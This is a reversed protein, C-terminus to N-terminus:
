SNTEALTDHLKRLFDIAKEINGLTIQEHLIRVTFVFLDEESLGPDVRFAGKERYHALALAKLFTERKPSSHQRALSVILRTQDEEIYLNGVKDIDLRVFGSDELELNKFGMANGLEHIVDKVM